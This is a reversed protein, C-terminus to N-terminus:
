AVYVTCHTRQLMIFRKQMCPRTSASRVLNMTPVLLVGNVLHVLASDGVAFLIDPIYLLKNWRLVLCIQMLSFLFNLSACYKYIIRWGSHFLCQKYVVLGVFGFLTGSVTTVGLEFTSFNLGIVLFNTWTSNPIQMASFIFIFVFPKWVARLQFTEWIKCAHESLTKISPNTSSSQNHYANSTTSTASAASNPNNDHPHM